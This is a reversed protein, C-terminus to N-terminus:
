KIGRNLFAEQISKGVFTDEGGKKSVESIDIGKEEAIIKIVKFACFGGQCRGMGARTAFKVGDLTDHGDRIASVIEAKSVSECRCIIEGYDPNEAILLDIESPTKDILRAFSNVEGNYNNKETLIFESKLMDKVYEAIAPSATLGPSQIGAVHIFSPIKKSYEIYFDGSELAPRMGSFATIIETKVLSPVMKLALSFIKEMGDSTTSLDEKNDVEVATPGLMMTGEVTPIVLTGKSNKVPVPFLIHNPFGHAGKEFLYEEGKRPCIKYDEAGFIESVEDAFLGAANIVCKANLSEGRDSIITYQGNSYEAKEVKFKTKLVVGNQIASKVLAFAFRYPEIIGASPALLACSANKSIVPEISLLRSRGILELSPVGNEIGRRYLMRLTREEEDSFAVVLAGTRKFPFHLRHKLSDFALNGRVELKAKLSGAKHHFGAHIIGSNAKSVGFSVDCEKELLVTNLKYASLKEAIASGIVGAGIIAVDFNAM